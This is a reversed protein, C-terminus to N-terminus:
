KRPTTGSAVRRSSRRPTLPAEVAIGSTSEQKKEEVSAPKESKVDGDTKKELATQSLSRTIKQRAKLYTRVFFDVFLLLYTSLLGSGFLAAFDTAPFPATSNLRPPLIRASDTGCSRSSSRASPASNQAFETTTSCFRISRRRVVVASRSFSVTLECGSGRLVQLGGACGGYNPWTPYYSSAFHTYTNLYCVALDIVFQTIQLTTLHKKWWIKQNPFLTTRAAPQLFANTAPSITCAYGCGCGM